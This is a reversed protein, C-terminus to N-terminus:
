GLCAALEILGNAAAVVSGIVALAVRMGTANGDFALAEAVGVFAFLHTTV